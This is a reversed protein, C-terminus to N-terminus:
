HRDDSHFVECFRGHFSPKQGAITLHTIDGYRLCRFQAIGEEREESVLTTVGSPACAFHQTLIVYPIGMLHSLLVSMVALHCVIVITKKNEVIVRYIKGDRKYGHESLLKDFEDTVYDYYKKVNGSKMLETKLYKEDNYLDKQSTIYTPKFDWNLVRKDDGPIIVHHHFEELWPMEIGSQGKIDLIAKATLKARPLPSFYVYDFSENKYYEALARVEEFGKKTLTQNPNDPEGHRIFIIKMNKDGAKIITITKRNKTLRVLFTLFAAIFRM